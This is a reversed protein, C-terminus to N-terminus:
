PLILFPIHIHAMMCTGTQQSKTATTNSSASQSQEGGRKALMPYDSIDENMELANDRKAASSPNDRKDSM